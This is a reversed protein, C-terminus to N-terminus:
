SEVTRTRYCITRSRSSDRSARTSQGRSDSDAKDAIEFAGGVIRVSLVVGDRRIAEGDDM